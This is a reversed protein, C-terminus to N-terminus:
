AYAPDAVFTVCFGDLYRLFGEEGTSGVIIEVILPLPTDQPLEEDLHGKQVKTKQESDMHVFSFPTVKAFQKLVTTKGTGGQDRLVLPRTRPCEPIKGELYDLLFKMKEAHTRLVPPLM